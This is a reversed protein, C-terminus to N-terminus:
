GLDSGRWDRRVFQHLRHPGFELVWGRRSMLNDMEWCHSAHRHPYTLGFSELSWRRWTRAWEPVVLQHTEHGGNVQFCQSMGGASHFAATRLLSSSSTM